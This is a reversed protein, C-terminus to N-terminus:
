FIMGCKFNYKNSKHAIQNLYLGAFLTAVIFFYLINMIIQASSVVHVANPELSVFYVLSTFFTETLGVALMIFIASLYAAFPM